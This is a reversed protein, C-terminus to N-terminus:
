PEASAEAPDAADLRRVVVSEEDIAVLYSQLDIVVSCNSGRSLQLDPALLGDLADLDVRHYLPHMADPEVGEVDCIAKALATSPREHAGIAYRHVAGDSPGGGAPTPDADHTDHAM